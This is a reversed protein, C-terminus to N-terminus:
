CKVQDILVNWDFHQTHISFRINWGIHTSPLNQETKDLRRVQYTFCMVHPRPKLIWVLLSFFYFLLGLILHISQTSFIKLLRPSISFPVYLFSQLFNQLLRFGMCFQQPFSNSVYSVITYLADFPKYIIVDRLPEWVKLNCIWQISRFECSEVLWWYILANLLFFWLILGRLSCIKSSLFGENPVIFVSFSKINM